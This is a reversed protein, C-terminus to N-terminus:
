GVSTSKKEEFDQWKWPTCIQAISPTLDSTHLDANLFYKQSWSSEKVKNLFFKVVAVSSSVTNYKSAGGGGVCKKEKLRHFHRLLVIPGIHLFLKPLLSNKFFQVKTCWHRENHKHPSPTISRWFNFITRSMNTLMGLWVALVHLLDKSPNKNLEGEQNLAQALPVKLQPSDTPPIWSITESVTLKRFFLDFLIFSRM